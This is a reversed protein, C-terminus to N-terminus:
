WRWNKYKEDYSRYQEDIFECDTCYDSTGHVCVVVLEVKQTYKSVM